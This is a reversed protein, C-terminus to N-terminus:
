IYIGCRKECWSHGNLWDGVRLSPSLADPTRRPFSVLVRAALAALWGFDLAASYCVSAAQHASGQRLCAVSRSNSM